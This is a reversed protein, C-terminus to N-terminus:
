SNAGGLRLISLRSLSSAIDGAPEDASLVDRLISPFPQRKISSQEPCTFSTEDFGMVLVTPHLIDSSDSSTARIRRTRVAHLLYSM